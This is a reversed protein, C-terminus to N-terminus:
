SHDNLRKKKVRFKGQLLNSLRVELFFDRFQVDTPGSAGHHQISLLV